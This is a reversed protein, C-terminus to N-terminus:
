LEQQVDCVSKSHNYQVGVCYSYLATSAHQWYKPQKTNEWVVLETEKKRELTFFVVFSGANIM